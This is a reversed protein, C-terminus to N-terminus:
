YESPLMVVNYEGNNQVYLTISNLPFDTYEITQSALLNDNGDELRVQATDNKLVHLKCVVFSEDVCKKNTRMHSWIVDLLWYASCTNAFYKVGDTLLFNPYIEYYHETGTFQAANREYEALIADRPKATEIEVTNTSNEM